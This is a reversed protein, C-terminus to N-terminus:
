EFGIATKLGTNKVKFKFKHNLTYESGLKGKIKGTLNQGNPQNNDGYYHIEYYGTQGAGMPDFDIRFIGPGFLGSEQGPQLTVNKM